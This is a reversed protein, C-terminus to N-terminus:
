NVDGVSLGDDISKPTSGTYELEDHGIGLGRCIRQYLTAWGNKTQTDMMGDIMEGWCRVVIDLLNNMMLVKPAILLELLLDLMEDMLLGPCAWM